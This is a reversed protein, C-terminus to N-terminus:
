VVRRGQIQVVPRGDSGIARLSQLSEHETTLAYFEYVIHEATGSLPKFHNLYKAVPESIATTHEERIDM